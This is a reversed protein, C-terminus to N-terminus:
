EDIQEMIKVYEGAMKLYTNELSLEFCKKSEVKINIYRIEAVIDNVDKYIIGCRNKIIDKIGCNESIIPICGKNMAELVTMNFTDFCSPAIVFSSDEYVKSLEKKTLKQKISIVHELENDTIFKKVNQFIKEEIVPGCMTLLANPFIKSIERFIKLCELPGKLKSYGGAYVFKMGNKESYDECFEALGNSIVYVNQPHNFFKEFIHKAYNSVCIINPMGEYLNKEIEKKIKQTTINNLRNEYSSIGHVTLFYKNNKNIKSIFLVLTPVAYGYTHVNIFINRKFLLSFIKYYERIKERLSDSHVNIFTYDIHTEDFGKLLSSIVNSPGTPNKVNEYGIVVVEM